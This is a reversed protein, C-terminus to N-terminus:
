YIKNKITVSDTVVTVDNGVSYRVTFEKTPTPITITEGAKAEVSTPTVTGGNANYTLTYKVTNDRVIIETTDPDVETGDELILKIANKENGANDIAKVKIRYKDGKNLPTFTFTSNQSIEAWKMNGQIIEYQYEKIESKGYESTADADIANIANVTISNDTTTVSAKFEKPALKDINTIQKQQEELVVGSTNVVRAKITINKEVTIPATYDVWTNGNDLSIQKKEKAVNSNFNIAVLINQNTWEETSAVISINANEENLTEIEIRKTVRVNGAKDVAKMRITYKTEMNLGEFTYKSNLKDTNQVWGNNNIEFWYEKVGSNSDSTEGEVTITDKTSVVEPTFRAPAIIDILNVSALNSKTLDTISVKGDNNIDGAKAYENVPKARLGVSILKMQTLDTIGAKGDGNLDDIVALKYEKSGYKLKM